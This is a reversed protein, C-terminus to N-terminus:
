EYELSKKEALWLPIWLEGAGHDLHAIQSKPLWIKEDDVVIFIAAETEAKIEDFHVLVNSGDDIEDQHFGRSM